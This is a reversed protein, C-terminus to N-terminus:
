RKSWKKSKIDEPCRISWEGNLQELACNIDAAIETTAHQWTEGGDYTVLTTTDNWTFGVDYPTQRPM